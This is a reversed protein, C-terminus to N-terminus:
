KVSLETPCKDRKKQLEYGIRLVLQERWHQEKKKSKSLSPQHKALLFFRKFLIRGFVIM